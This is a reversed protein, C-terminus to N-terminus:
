CLKPHLVYQQIFNLYLVSIWFQFILVLKDRYASILFDDVYHIKTYKKQFCLVHTKALMFNKTYLRQYCLTPLISTKKSILTVVILSLDFSSLNASTCNRHCATCHRFSYIFIFFFWRLRTGRWSLTCIYM